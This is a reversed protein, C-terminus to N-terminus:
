QIFADSQQRRELGTSLDLEIPFAELLGRRM